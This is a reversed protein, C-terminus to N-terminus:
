LIDVIYKKSYIVKMYSNLNKDIIVCIKMFVIM